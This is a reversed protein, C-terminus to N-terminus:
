DQWFCGPDDPNGRKPDRYQWFCGPDSGTSLFVVPIPDRDRTRDRATPPGAHAGVVGYQCVNTLGPGAHVALIQASPGTSAGNALSGDIEIPLGRQAYNRARMRAGSYAVPTGWLNRYDDGTSAHSVEASFRKLIRTRHSSISCIPRSTGGKM